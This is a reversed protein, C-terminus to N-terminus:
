VRRGRGQRCTDHKERGNCPCGQISVAAWLRWFIAWLLAIIAEEYKDKYLFITSILVCAVSIIAKIM